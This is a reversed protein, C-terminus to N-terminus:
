QVSPWITAPRESVCIDILGSLMERRKCYGILERIIGKKEQPMDEYDIKFNYLANLIDIIGRLESISFKDTMLEALSSVVNLQSSSPIHYNEATPENIHFVNIVVTGTHEQTQSITKLIDQLILQINM